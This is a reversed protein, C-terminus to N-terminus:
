SGLSTPVSKYRLLKHAPQKPPYKPLTLCAVHKLEQSTNLSQPLVCFFHVLKISSPCRACSYHDRMDFCVITHHTKFCSNNRIGVWAKTVWFQFSFSTSFLNWVCGSWYHNWLFSALFLSPVRFHFYILLVEQPIAQSLNHPTGTTVEYWIESTVPLQLKLDLVELSAILLTPCFIPDYIKISFDLYQDLIM